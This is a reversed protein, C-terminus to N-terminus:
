FLECTTALWYGMLGRSIKVKRDSRVISCTPIEILTLKIEVAWKIKVHGLARSDNGHDLAKSAM